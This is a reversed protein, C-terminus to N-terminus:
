RACSWWPARTDCRAGCPGAPSRLRVCTWTTATPGAPISCSPAPRYRAAVLALSWDSRFPRGFAPPTLGHCLLRQPTAGNVAFPASVVDTVQAQVAIADRRLRGLWRQRVAARVWLATGALLVAAGTWAWALADEGAGLLLVVAGLLALYPPTLILPM